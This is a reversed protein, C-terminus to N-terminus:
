VGLPLVKVPRSLLIAMRGFVLLLFAWVLLRTPSAGTSVLLGGNSGNSDSVAGSAVATTSTTSSTTSSSTTTSRVTTTTTTGGVPITTTTTTTTTGGGAGASGVTFTIAGSGGDAVTVVANWFKDQTAGANSTCAIGLNYIGAPVATPVGGLAQFRAFSFDPLNVVLGPGAPSTAVATAGSVYAVKAASFMPLRVNAGIAQPEPGVNSFTLSAPNVSSAVFYSQVRYGGTASDGSCAAGAPLLLQFPTNADGGTIPAGGGGASNATALVANGANVGAASAHPDVSGLAALVSVLLMAASVAAGARSLDRGIRRRRTIPTTTLARAM